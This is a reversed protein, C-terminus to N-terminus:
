RLDEKINLYSEESGWNAHIFDKIDKDRRIKLNEINNELAILSTAFLLTSERQDRLLKVFDPYFLVSNHFLTHLGEFDDNTLETIDVDADRCARRLKKRFGSLIM